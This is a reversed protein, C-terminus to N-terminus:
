RWFTRLCTTSDPREIGGSIYLTDGVLAGAAFSCPGPLAPLMESRLHNARWSLRYVERFHQQGDGGGRFSERQRAPRFATLRLTHCIARKRWAASPADLRWVTDYWKKVGGEWPRQDTFNAGGALMLGEDCTGAFMGAFGEPDPLGRFRNGDCLPRPNPLMCRLEPFFSLGSMRRWSHTFSLKRTTTPM